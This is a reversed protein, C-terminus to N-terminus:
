RSNNSELRGKTDLSMSCAYCTRNESSFFHCIEKDSNYEKIYIYVLFINACGTVGMKRLIISTGTVNRLLICYNM